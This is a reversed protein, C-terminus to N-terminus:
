SPLPRPKMTILHYGYLHNEMEQTKSTQWEGCVLVDLDGLPGQFRDNMKRMAKAEQTMSNVETERVPSVFKEQRRVECVHIFTDMRRCLDYVGRSPRM